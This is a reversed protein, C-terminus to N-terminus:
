QPLLDCGLEPHSQGKYVARKAMYEFKGLM